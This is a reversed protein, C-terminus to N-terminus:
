FFRYRNQLIAGHLIRCSVKNMENMGRFFYVKLIRNSFYQYTNQRLKLSNKMMHIMLPYRQGSQPCCEVEGERAKEHVEGCSWKIKILRIMFSPFESIRVDRGRMDILIFCNQHSKGVFIDERWTLDEAPRIPSPSPSSIECRFTDMWGRAKRPLISKLHTMVLCERKVDPSFPQM